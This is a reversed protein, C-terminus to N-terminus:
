NCLRKTQMWAAETVERVTKCNVHKQELLNAFKEM